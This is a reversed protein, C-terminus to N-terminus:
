PMMDILRKGDFSVGWLRMFDMDFSLNYGIVTEVQDFIGKEVGAIEYQYPADLVVLPMIGYIAQVDEWEVKSYSKIYSDLM